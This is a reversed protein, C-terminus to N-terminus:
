SRANGPTGNEGAAGDAKDPSEPVGATGPADAAPLTFVFRAGGGPNDEAGITGGHREVIRKCIAPGLGSGTYPGGTHARRFNEFIARHQGPPIGIGRDAVEVRVWGPRERTSIVTIHPRQGPATCKVANGILNDLLQRLLARDARVADLEGIDFVPAQGTGDHP